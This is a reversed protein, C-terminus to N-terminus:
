IPYSQVFGEEEEIVDEYQDDDFIPAEEYDDNAVGYYGREDFSSGDGEFFLYELEEGEGRRGDRDGCRKPNMMDNMR